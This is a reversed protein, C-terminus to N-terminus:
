WANGKGTCDILVTGLHPLSLAASLCSAVSPKSSRPIRSTINQPHISLFDTSQMSQHSFLLIQMHPDRVRSSFGRWLILRHAAQVPSRDCVLGGSKPLCLKAAHRCALTMPDHSCGRLQFVVPQSSGTLM